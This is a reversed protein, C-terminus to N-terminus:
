LGHAVLEAEVADLVAKAAAKAAADLAPEDAKAAALAAAAAARVDSALAAREKAAEGRVAAVVDHIKSEIKSMESVDDTGKTSSNRGARFVLLLWTILFLVLAVSAGPYQWVHHYTTM